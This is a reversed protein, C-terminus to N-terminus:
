VSINVLHWSQARNVTKLKIVNWETRQVAGVSTGSPISPPIFSYLPLLAGTLWFHYYSKTMRTGKTFIWCFQRIDQARQAARCPGWCKAGAPGISGSRRDRYKFGDTTRLYPDDFYFVDIFFAHRVVCDIIKCARSTVCLFISNPYFACDTRLQRLSGPLKM